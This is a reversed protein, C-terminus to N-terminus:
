VPYAWGVYRVGGRRVIGVRLRLDPDDTRLKTSLAGLKKPWVIAGSEETVLYTRTIAHGETETSTREELKPAVVIVDISFPGDWRRLRHVAAGAVLIGPVIAVASLTSATVFAAIGGLTTFGLGTWLMAQGVGDPPRAEVVHGDCGALNARVEAETTLALIWQRQEDTFRIEGPTIDRYAM